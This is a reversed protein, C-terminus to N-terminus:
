ARGRASSRQLMRPDIRYATSARQQPIEQNMSSRACSGRLRPRMYRRRESVRYRFIHEARVLREVSFCVPCTSAIYRLSQKELSFKGM